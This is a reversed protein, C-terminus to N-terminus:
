DLDFTVDDYKDEPGFERGQFYHAANKETVEFLDCFLDFADEASVSDKNEIFQTAKRNMADM